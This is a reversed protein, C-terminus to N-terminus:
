WNAVDDNDNSQGAPARNLPDSGPATSSAEVVIKRITLAPKWVEYGDVKVPEKSKSTLKEMDVAGTVTVAQGVTLFGVDAAVDSFGRLDIKKSRSDVTVDLVLTSYKGSPAVWRRVVYGAIRFGSGM